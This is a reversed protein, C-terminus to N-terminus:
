LTRLYWHLATLWYPAIHYLENTIIYYNTLWQKHLMRYTNTESAKFFSLPHLHALCQLVYCIFGSKDLWLCSYILVHLGNTRTYRFYVFEFPTVIPEIWLMGFLIVICERQHRKLEGSGKPENTLKYYPCAGDDTRQRGNDDTWWKWLDEEGFGSPWDFGFKMHLRWPDPSSLNTRPMQTVDPRWAWIHYFSMMVSVERYLLLGLNAGLM